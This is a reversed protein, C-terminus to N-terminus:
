NRNDVGWMMKNRLTNLFNQDELRVLNFYFDAKKLAIQVSPAFSISRSDISALFNRSRGEVEFTIVNEDSVVIPRVNLNHPAIPTIAFSSSGPFLIPGGCSLSYGTSGTPTAIILGDAWYSNLFEGNLYTHVTIMSSTETKHIVFDNLGNTFDFLSDSSEIQLLSRSDISYRGKILNRIADEYLTDSTSALFGLRGANIGLVPIGTDRVISLTDLLTGDGGISLIFSIESNPDTLNSFTQYKGPDELQPALYDHICYEQGEKELLEIVKFFLDRSRHKTLKRAYIGFKM